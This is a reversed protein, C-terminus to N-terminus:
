PRKSYLRRKSHKAAKELWKKKGPHKPHAPHPGNRPKESGAKAFAPAASLTLIAPPVYLARKVFGRRAADPLESSEAM